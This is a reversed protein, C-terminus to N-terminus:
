RQVFVFLGVRATTVSFDRDKILKECFWAEKERLVFVKKM